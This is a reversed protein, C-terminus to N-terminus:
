RLPLRQGKLYNPTNDTYEFHYRLPGDAMRLEYLSWPAFASIDTMYMFSQPYHDYLHKQKKWIREQKKNKMVKEKIIIVFNDHQIEQGSESSSSTSADSLSESIFDQSEM